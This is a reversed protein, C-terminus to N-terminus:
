VQYKKRGSVIYELVVLASIAFLCALALSPLGKVQAIIQGTIQNITNAIPLSKGSPPSSKGGLGVLTIILTAAIGLAYWVKRNIIPEYVVKKDLYEIGMMVKQTIDISPSEVLHKELLADLAPYIILSEQAEIQQMIIGTFDAKPQDLEISQILKKLKDEKGHTM